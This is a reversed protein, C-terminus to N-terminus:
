KKLMFDEIPKRNNAFLNSWQGKFSSSTPNSSGKAIANNIPIPAAYDNERLCPLDNSANERLCPLEETDVSDVMENLSTNHPPPNLSTSASSGMLPISTSPCVQPGAYASNLTLSSEHFGLNDPLHPIGSIPELDAIVEDVEAVADDISVKSTESDGNLSPCRGDESPLENEEELPELPFSNGLDSTESSVDSADSSMRAVILTWQSLSIKKKKKGM